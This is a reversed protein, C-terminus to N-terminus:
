PSAPVADLGSPTRPSFLRGYLNVADGCDVAVFRFGRALRRAVDARSGWARPADACPSVFDGRDIAAITRQAERMTEIWADRRLGEWRAGRLRAPRTADASLDLLWLRGTITGGHLRPALARM